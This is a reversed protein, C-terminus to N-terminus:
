KKAERGAINFSSRGIVWRNHSRFGASPDPNSEYEVTQETTVVIGGRDAESRREPSLPTHQGPTSPAERDLARALTGASNGGGRLGFARRAWNGAATTSSGLIPVEDETLAPPTVPRPQTEASVNRSDRAPYGTTTASGHM